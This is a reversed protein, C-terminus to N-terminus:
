AKVCYALSHRSGSHLRGADRMWTADEDRLKPTQAVDHERGRQQVIQATRKGIRRDIEEDSVARGRKEIMVRQDVLSEDIIAGM